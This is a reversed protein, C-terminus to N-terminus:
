VSIPQQWEQWYRIKEFLRKKSPLLTIVQAYIVFVFRLEHTLVKTKSTEITTLLLLSTAFCITNM